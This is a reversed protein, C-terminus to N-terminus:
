NLHSPLPTVDRSILYKPASTRYLIESTGFISYSEKALAQVVQAAIRQEQNSNIQLEIAQAVFQNLTINKQTACITAARHMEPTIRINFTGRFEKCPEKGQEECFILYEDITEHFATQIDDVTEGEFTLNDTIWCVKGILINDDSDYNITAHYGKYELLNNM